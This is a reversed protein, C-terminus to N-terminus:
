EGITGFENKDEATKRNGGAFSGEDQEGVRALLAIL